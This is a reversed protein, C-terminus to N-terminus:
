LLREYIVKALFSAEEYTMPEFGEKDPHYEQYVSGVKYIWGWEMKKLLIELEM